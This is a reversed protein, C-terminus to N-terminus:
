RYKTNALSTYRLFSALILGIRAMRNVRIVARWAIQPFNRRSRYMPRSLEEDEWSSKRLLAEM